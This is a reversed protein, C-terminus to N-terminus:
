FYPWWSPSPIPITFINRFILQIVLVTLISVIASKLLPRKKYVSLAMMGLFGALMFSLPQWLILSGFAVVAVVVVDKWSVPEQAEAALKEALEETTMDEEKIEHHPHKAEKKAEMTTEFVSVCALLAILVCLVRPYVGDANVNFSCYFFFAAVALMLVCILNSQQRHTM